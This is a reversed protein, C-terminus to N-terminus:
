YVKFSLLIDDSAGTIRHTGHETKKKRRLVTGYPFTFVSQSIKKFTANEM